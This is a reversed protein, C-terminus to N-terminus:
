LTLAVKFIHNLRSLFLSKQALNEGHWHEDTKGLEVLQGEKCWSTRGEDSKTSIPVPLYTRTMIVDFGSVSQYM